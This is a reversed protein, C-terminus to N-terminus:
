LKSPKWIELAIASIFITLKLINFNLIYDKLPDDYSLVTGLLDAIQIWVFVALIRKYDQSEDYIMLAFAVM